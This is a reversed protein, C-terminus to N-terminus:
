GLWAHIKSRLAGWFLAIYDFPKKILETICVNLSYKIISDNKLQLVYLSLNWATMM